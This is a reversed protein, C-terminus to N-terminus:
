ASFNGSVFLLQRAVQEELLISLHHATPNHAGSTLTRRLIDCIAPSCQHFERSFLLACYLAYLTLQFAWFVELATSPSEAIKGSELPISLQQYAQFL